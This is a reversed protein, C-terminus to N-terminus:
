GRRLHQRPKLKLHEAIAASIQNRIKALPRGESCCHMLEIPYSGYKTADFADFCKKCKLIPRQNPERHSWHNLFGVENSRVAYLRGREAEWETYKPNIQKPAKGKDKAHRQAKPSEEATTPNKTAPRITTPTWDDRWAQRNLWALASQRRPSRTANCYATYRKAGAVIDAYIVGNELYEAIRSEADAVTTRMPMAQWFELYPDQSESSVPPHLGSPGLPRSPAAAGEGTARDDIKAQQESQNISLPTTPPVVDTNHPDSGRDSSIVVTTSQLDSGQTTNHPDSGQDNVLIKPNLKYRNSRVRNGHQHIVVLGLNLLAKTATKAHRTTTGTRGALTAFSPWALGTTANAMDAMTVLIALQVRSLIPMGAASALYQLKQVPGLTQLQNEAMFPVHKLGPQVAIQEAIVQSKREVTPFNASNTDTHLGNTNSAGAAKKITNTHTM